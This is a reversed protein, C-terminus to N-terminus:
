EQSKLPVSARFIVAEELANITIQAGAFAVSAEGKGLALNSEAGEEMEVKGQMVIFIEATASSISCRVSGMSTLILLSTSCSRWRICKM